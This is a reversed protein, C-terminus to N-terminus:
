KNKVNNAHTIAKIFLAGNKATPTFNANEKIHVHINLQNQMFPNVVIAHIKIKIGNIAIKKPIIPIVLM